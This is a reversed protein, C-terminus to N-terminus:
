AGETVAQAGEDESSLLHRVEELSSGEHPVTLDSPVITSASVEKGQRIRAILTALVESFRAEDSTEIAENLQQDLQELEGLEDEGLEYQGGGLIRVIV